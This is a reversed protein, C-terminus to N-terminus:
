SALAMFSKRGPTEPTPHWQRPSQSALAIAAQHESGFWVEETPPSRGTTWGGRYYSSVASFVPSGFDEGTAGSIPFLAYLTVRFDKVANGTPAVSEGSM